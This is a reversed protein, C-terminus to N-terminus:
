GHDQRAQQAGRPGVFYRKLAASVTLKGVPAAAQLAQPVRTAQEFPLARRETPACSTM